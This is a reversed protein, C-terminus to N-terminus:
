TGSSPSRPQPSAGTVGKGRREVPVGVGGRQQMLQDDKIYYSGEKRETTTFDVEAREVPTQAESMVDSGLRALAIPLDGALNDGPRSRVGYRGAYLRDFFGQEGLVMEPNAAFYASVLGEKPNGNKDPLTVPTTNTWSADGAAEDPLRKRLVIIDTTVATGASKEFADGPLRVAGVLDARDALYKRAAADAKNLTGASTVFMLLGGPRVADLSKAFFYDHLLFGQPYAPDSKIPIDAFPPNGIVLDYTDRPLPARTFDDQRVGWKPYLLRAIKATTPDLELGNYRTEAAVGAPMMGAFNGTGMGPEFVSGGKFGLREAAEWM